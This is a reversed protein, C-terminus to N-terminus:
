SQGWGPQMWDPQTWAEVPPPPAPPASDPNMREKCVLELYRHMEDQDRIATIELHRIVHTVMDWYELYQSVAIASQYWCSVRYLMINQVTDGLREDAQHPLDLPQIGCSITLVRVPPGPVLGGTDPDLTSTPQMVNVRNVLAGIRVNQTPPYREM